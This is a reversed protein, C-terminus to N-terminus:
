TPLPLAAIMFGEGCLFALNAIGLKLLKDKEEAIEIETPVESQNIMEKFDEMKQDDSDFPKGCFDYELLDKIQEISLKKENKYLDM